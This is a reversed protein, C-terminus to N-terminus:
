LDASFIDNGESESEHTSLLCEGTYDVKLIGITLFLFFPAKFTLSALM